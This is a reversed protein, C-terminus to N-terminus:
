FLEPIIRGFKHISYHIFEMIGHEFFYFCASNSLQMLVFVCGRFLCFCGTLFQRVRTSIRLEVANLLVSASYLGLVFTRMSCRRLIPCRIEKWWFPPKWNMRLLLHNKIALPDSLFFDGRRTAASLASAFLECACFCFQLLKQYVCHLHGWILYSTRGVGSLIQGYFESHM